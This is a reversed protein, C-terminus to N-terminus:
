VRVGLNRVIERCKGANTTWVRVGLYRVIERCKGANTTKVVDSDRVRTIIILCVM